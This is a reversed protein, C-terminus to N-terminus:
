TKLEFLQPLSTFASFPFHHLRLQNCHHTYCLTIITLYIIGCYARLAVRGEFSFISLQNLPEAGPCVVPNPQKYCIIIDNLWAASLLNPMPPKQDAGQQYGPM